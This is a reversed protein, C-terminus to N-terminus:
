NEPIAAPKPKAQKWLFGPAPPEGFKNAFPQGPICGLWVMLGAVVFVFIGMAQTAQELSLTALALALLAFEALLVSGAWWGSKGIDHLRPICVIMLVVESISMHDGTVLYIVGYLLVCIGVTLWYTPRSTRGKLFDM